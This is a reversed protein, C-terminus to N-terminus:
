VLDSTVLLRAYINTYQRSRYHQKIQLIAILVTDAKPNYRSDSV